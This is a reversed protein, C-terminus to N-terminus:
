FKGSQSFQGIGSIEGIFGTKCFYNDVCSKILIKSKRETVLFHEASCVAM